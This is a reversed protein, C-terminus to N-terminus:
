RRVRSFELKQYVKNDYMEELTSWQDKSLQDLDEWKIPFPGGFIKIYLNYLTM